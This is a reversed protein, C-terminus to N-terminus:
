VTLSAATAASLMQPTTSSKPTFYWQYTLTGSGTATVAFSASSGAIVVQAVPQSSITPGVPAATVTLVAASSTVTGASNTVAVTYSGAATTAVASLVLSANTANTIATGDKRWQYTPSPTGTAVVAFTVNAGATVSQSAPQTSIVPSGAAAESTRATFRYDTVAGLQQIWLSYQGAPLPGAGLLTILETGIPSADAATGFHTYGRLPTAAAATATVTSGAQLGIFAKTDTSAYYDLIFSTLVRGVPVTFTIYDQQDGTGGVSNMIVFKERFNGQIEQVSAVATPAAPNNSFDAAPEINEIWGTSRFDYSTSSGSIGTFSDISFRMKRSNGTIADIEALFAASKLSAGGGTFVFLGQGVALGTSYATRVSFVEVRGVALIAGATDYFELATTSGVPPSYDQVTIGGNAGNEGSIFSKLDMDGFKFTVNTEAALSSTGATSTIRGWPSPPTPNVTFGGLGSTIKTWAYYQIGSVFAQKKTPDLVSSRVVATAPLGPGNVIGNFTFASSEFTFSGGSGTDFTLVCKFVAGTALTADIPFTLEPTTVGTFGAAATVDTWTTASVSPKSQWKFVTTVASGAWYNISLSATTIGSSLRTANAMPGFIQVAPSTASGVTLKVSRTQPTGTTGNQASVTYDGADGASVATFVYEPTATTLPASVGSRRWTLAFTTDGRANVALIVQSGLPAYLMEPLGSFIVPDRNAVSPDIRVDRVSTAPHNPGEYRGENATNLANIRYSAGTAGTLTTSVGNVIQRWAFTTPSPLVLTDGLLLTAGAQASFVPPRYVSIPTEAFNRGATVRLAGSEADNPIFAIIQTTTPSALLALTRGGLTVVVGSTFNTGIITVPSGAAVAKPTVSTITPSTTVATVTLAANTSTVATGVGNSVVVSYDGSDAPVLNLLTLSSNTASLINTGNKRWQFSPAPTGTAVVSLTYNNGETGANVSPPQQFIGAAVPAGGSAFTLSPVTLSVAGTSPSRYNPYPSPVSVVQNGSLGAPYNVVFTFQLAGVPFASFAWELLNDGVFPQTAATAGSSGAFTWGAPLQVAYAIASPSADPTPYAVTATFTATGGSSAYTSSPSNLFATASQSLGIQVLLCSALFFGFLQKM